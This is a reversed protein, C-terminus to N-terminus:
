ASRINNPLYRRNGDNSTYKLYNSIYEPYIVKQVKSFSSSFDKMKNFDSFTKVMYQKDARYDIMSKYAKFVWYVKM